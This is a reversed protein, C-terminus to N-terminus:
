GKWTTAFINALLIGGVLALTEALGQAFYVLEQLLELETM